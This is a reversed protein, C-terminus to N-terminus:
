NIKSAEVDSLDIRELEVVRKNLTEIQEEMKKFITKLKDIEETTYIINYEKMKTKGGWIINANNYKGVMESTKLLRKVKKLNKYELVSDSM